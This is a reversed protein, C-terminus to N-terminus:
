MCQLEASVDFCKPCLFVYVLASDPLRAEPYDLGDLQALLVMRHGCCEPTYDGQIFTPKGGFQTGGSVERGDAPVLKM